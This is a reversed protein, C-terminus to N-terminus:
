GNENTIYIRPNLSKLAKTLLAKSCTTLVVSARQYLETHLNCVDGFFLFLDDFPPRVPQFVTDDESAAFDGDSENVM